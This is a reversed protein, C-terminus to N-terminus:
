YVQVGDVECEGLEGPETYDEPQGNYPVKGVLLEAAEANFAGGHDFTWVREYTQGDASREIVGRKPGWRARLWLWQGDYDSGYLQRGLVDAQLKGDSRTGIRLLAGDPWRLLAAPGWSLGGDTGHRLRIM